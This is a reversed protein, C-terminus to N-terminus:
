TGIAIWYIKSNPDRTTQTGSYYNISLFRLTDWRRRDYGSLSYTPFYTELPLKTRTAYKGLYSGKVVEIRIKAGLVNLFIELNNIYSYFSGSPYTYTYKTKWAGSEYAQFYVTYNYREQLTYSYYTGTTESWSDYVYNYYERTYGPLLAFSFRISKTGSAPYFEYRWRNTYGSVLYTSEIIDYPATKSGLPNGADTTHYLRPKFGTTSVQEARMEIFQDVSSYSKKYIQAKNMALLINPTEKFAPNFSVISGDNAVGSEIRSVYNRTYWTSSSTSTRYQFILSGSNLISKETSNSDSSGNYSIIQGDNFVSILNNDLDFFSSSGTAKLIGTTISGADLNTVTIKSADLTGTNIQNATINGTYIGNSDIYTGKIEDIKKIVLTKTIGSTVGVATIECSDGTIYKTTATPYIYFGGKNNFVYNTYNSNLGTTTVKVQEGNTFFQIYTSSYNYHSTSTGSTGPKKVFFIGKSSNIELFAGSPGAPGTAGNAGDYVKAVTVSDYVYTGTSSSRARVRIGLTKYTSWLSSNHSLSYSSSTAGSISTWSGGPRKYEWQFTASDGYAQASFTISTPTPTTAGTAYKFIQDSSTISVYFADKGNVGSPGQPGTAGPIGRRARTISFTKNITKGNPLKIPITCSGTDTASTSITSLSIRGTTTNRSFSYGATINTPSGVYFQNSGPSSSNVFSLQTGGRYVLIDTYAGSLSIVSGDYNAPVTHSENTLVVTYADEGISGDRVVTITAEDDDIFNSSSVSGSYMYVKIKAYKSFSYTNLNLTASTVSTSSYINTEAGGDNSITLRYVPNSSLYGKPEWNVTISSIDRAGSASYKVVYNSLRLNVVAKDRVKNVSFIAKLAPGNTIQVPIECTASDSSGVSQVSIVDGSKSFSWGTGTKLVPAGITFHTNLTLQTPGHYVYVKTQAATIESAAVNGNSDAILTHSQNDLVVSYANQGAVGGTVKVISVVDSIGSATAKFAISKYSGWINSWNINNYTGSPYVNLYSGTVNVGSTTVVNSWTSGGNRSYYWTVTSSFNMNPTLKIYSPSASTDTPSSYEFTQGGEAILRLIKPESGDAGRKSKTVTFRRKVTLGNDLHITIDAYAVDATMASCSIEGTSTNLNFTGNVSSIDTSIYGFQNLVPSQTNSYTHEIDEKFVRVLTSAGSFSTVNGNSEAPVIHSENTLFVSYSQAPDGKKGDQIKSITLEDIDIKAGTNGNFAEVKFHVTSTFKSFNTTAFTYSTSTSQTLVQQESQNDYKLFLNFKPNPINQVTFTLTINNNDSPYIYGNSDYHLLYKSATLTVFGSNKAKDVSFRKTIINGDAFLIDFDCVASDSSGVTDVYIAGNAMNEKFVWTQDNSRINTISFTGPTPTDDGSYVLTQDGKFAFVNTTAPSNLGIEGPLPNGSSDCAITHSENDIIVGYPSIGDAGDAGPEGPPGQVQQIKTITFIDEDILKSIDFADYIEAKFVAKEVFTDVYTTPPNYTWTTGNGADILLNYTGQNDYKVYWKIYPTRVNRVLANFNIETPYSLIGAENYVILTADASIDIAGSDIKRDLSWIKPFLSGDPLKILIEYTAALDADNNLTEVYLTDGINSITWGNGGSIFGSGSDFTFEGAAPTASSTYTLQTTDYTVSVKTIARGTAGIENDLPNGISDCLITHSENSLVVTYTGAGDRGRINQFKTITETDSDILQTPNSNSYVEVKFTAIKDFTESITAPPTYILLPDTDPLINFPGDDYKVYWKYTPDSINVPSASLTIQTPSQLQGDEDYNIIRADSIVNVLGAGLSKNVSFQKTIITGDSFVVDFLIGANTSSQASLSNVYIGGNITDEFVSWGTGTGPVFRINKIAFEQFGPTDTSVYTFQNTGDYATVLTSARSGLGVEGDKPIGAADTEITHSENSLLVSYSNRGSYSKYANFTAYIIEGDPFVIPIDAWATDIYINSISVKGTGVDLEVDLGTEAIATSDITFHGDSPPSGTPAEWFLRQGNYFVVFETFAGVFAGPLPNGLYDCSIGNSPNTLGVTKNGKADYVKYLTIIDEKPEGSSEAVTVKYTRFDESFDTHTVTFQTQGDNGTIHVWDAINSDWFYWKYDIEGINYKTAKLTITPNVINGDIDYKFVISESNLVIYNATGTPGQLGDQIHALTITDTIEGELPDNIVVRFTRVGSSFNPITDDTGGIEITDVGSAFTTSWDGLGGNLTTDWYQWELDAVNLNYLYAKLTIKGDAPYSLTTDSDHKFVLGELSSLSVLKSAGDKGDYVKKLAWNFPGLVLGEQTQITVPITASDATIDTVQIEGTSTNIQATANYGAITGGSHTIRYTYTGNLGEDYTYTQLGYYVVLSTKADNLSNPKLTGDYYVPINHTPNTFLVTYANEGGSLKFPDSWDSWIVGNRTAISSWVAGVPSFSWGNDLDGEENVLGPPNTPLLPLLPSPNYIIKIETSLNLKSTDDLNEWRIAGEGFVLDGSNDKNFWMAFRNPDNGGGLKIFESDLDIIMGEMTSPDPNNETNKFRTSKIKGGWVEGLAGDDGIGGISEWATEGGKYFKSKNAAFVIKGKHKSIEFTPLVPIFEIFTPSYIRTIALDTPDTDHLNVIQYSGGVNDIEVVKLLLYKKDSLLSKQHPKLVSYYAVPPPKTKAYQYTLCVYYYGTTDLPPPKAGGPTDPVYFDQDALNIIFEEEIHIVVDSMFAVGKSVKLITSTEQTVNLADTAFICNKDGTIAKTLSNVVNSSYETFPDVTRTQQPIVNAM